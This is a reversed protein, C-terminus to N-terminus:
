PRKRLGPLMGERVAGGTRRPGPTGAEVTALDTIALNRGGIAYILGGATVTAFYGRVTLMDSLQTWRAGAAAMPDYVYTAVSYTGGTTVGGFVYLKGDLVGCGHGALPVPLPDSTITGWADVTTYYVQLTDLYTAAADYGGPVYIDTGIVGTCINSAPNPMWNAQTTWLGTAPDFEEVTQARGGVIEGGIVYM